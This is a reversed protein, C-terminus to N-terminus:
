NGKVWKYMLHTLAACVAVAILITSLDTTETPPVRDHPVPSSSEQTKVTSLAKCGFM